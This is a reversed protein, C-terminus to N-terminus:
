RLAIAAFAHDCAVGTSWSVASVPNDAPISQCDGQYLRLGVGTSNNRATFTLGHSPTETQNTNTNAYGLLVIGQKLVPVTGSLSTSALQSGKASVPIFSNFETEDAVWVGIVPTNSFNSTFGVVISAVTGYPALASFISIHVGTSQEVHLTASQEGIQATNIAQGPTTMMCCIIRRSGFEPGVDVNARRVISAADVSVAAFSKFTLTPVGSANARRGISLVRRRM